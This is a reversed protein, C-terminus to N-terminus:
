SHNASGAPQRDTDSDLPAADPLPRPPTRAIATAPYGVRRLFLGAAPAPPSTVLGDRDDNLLARMDDLPRRGRAIDVMTGVLYRVMHHLFRNAVVVFEIGLKWPEWRAETVHCRDGREEQGARAFGAFSKDGPLLAAAARLADVDVDATPPATAGDSRALPWCWGRHFPSHSAAALGLRYGYERTTADYRPHFGPPAPHAEAVWVDRPLRANLARRLTAATWRPPLDVAVVQGTAHVGRDTRGAAIVTRPAGTLRTLTAQLEGQVTREERQVQWGFFGSGDYHLTLRFRREELVM